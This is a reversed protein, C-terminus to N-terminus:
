GRSLFTRAIGSLLTSGRLLASEELDFEPHHWPIPNANSRNGGVGLYIFCGPAYKLYEAFDEGGMSASELRAVNKKGFLQTATDLSIQAMDPSNYLVSGLTEFKIRARVGHARAVNSLIESLMKPINRHVTESLTRVTGTFRVKEALINYRAGGEITGVTLVVPEVPDTKRSVITQLALIMEAAVPISDKGEHPYAAHGGVGLVDVEFKDVAAMLAGPKIGITGAPFRPNVHLGFVADVKPNKMCGKQILDKAGGAGEENPQFLFKVNGKWDKKECLSIAAGLLMAVHADHGCAHMVGPTGSRYPKNTRETLPLADMDARLGVCRTSGRNGSLLAIVGTPTTRKHPIRYENLVKEILSATKFEKNGLEPNQHIERRISIIKRSLQSDTM